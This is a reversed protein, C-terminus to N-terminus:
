QAAREEAKIELFREKSMSFGAEQMNKWDQKDQATLHSEGFKGSPANRKPKVKRPASQRNPNVPPANPPAEQQSTIIGEVYAVGASLIEDTMEGNVAMNGTYDQFKAILANSYASGDTIWPNEANWVEMPNAREAPEPTQIMRAQKLRIQNVLETDGEAVAAQFEAELIAADEKEMATLKQQLRANNEQANEALKRTRKIDARQAIQEGIRNFEDYDKWLGNGTYDAEPTWGGAVARDREPNFEDSIEDGAMETKVVENKTEKTEPEDAGFAEKMAATQEATQEEPPM